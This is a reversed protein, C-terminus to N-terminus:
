VTVWISYQKKNIQLKRVAAFTIRVCASSSSQLLQLQSQQSKIEDISLSNFSGFGDPIGQLDNLQSTDESYNGKVYEGENGAQCWKKLAQLVAYLSNGGNDATNNNTLMRKLNLGDFSNDSNYNGELFLGGGFGSHNTSSQSYIAKCNTIQTESIIFASQQQNFYLTIYIGGGNGANSTCDEINTNSLTIKSENAFLYVAGGNWSSNCGIFLCGSLTLQSNSSKLSAYLGGGNEYSTCRNFNCNSLTVSSDSFSQANLGGGSYGECYAFTVGDIALQVASELYLYLSNTLSNEDNPKCEIFLTRKFTFLVSSQSLRAQIIGHYDSFGQATRMTIDEFTCNEITIVSSGQLMFVETDTHIDKVTLKYIYATGDYMRLFSRHMLASTSSQSMQCNLLTLDSHSSKGYLVDSDLSSWSEVTFNIYNFKASGSINFSGDHDIQINSLSTSTTPYNRFTRPSSYESIQLYQSLSIVDVIYVIFTASVNIKSTITQSDINKCPSDDTCQNFNDGSTQVYFENIQIIDDDDDGPETGGSNWYSELYKTEGQIQSDNYQNFTEMSQAIGMLVNENSTADNYNGKVFKGATGEKCWLELGGIVVFLTQGFKDAKNGDIKMGSLDITGDKYPFLSHGGIFIGGGYGQPRNYYLYQAECEQFIADNITFKCDPTYDLYIGGGNGKCFCKYFKCQSNIIINGKYIDAYIGGGEGGEAASCNTFLCNGSLTLQSNSQSDVYIGGGYGYNYASCDTFLFQNSDTTGLTLQAGSQLQVYIGGGRSAQCHDFKLNSLIGIALQNLILCLAGGYSSGEPSRCRIFQTEAITLQNESSTQYVNIIGARNDYDIGRRNIDQFISNTITITKAHFAYIIAQASEVNEVNLNNIILVGQSIYVFTRLLVSQQDTTNMKCNTINIVASSSSSELVPDFQQIVSVIFKIFMFLIQGSVGFYHNKDVRIGCYAESSTPYNRFTRPSDTQTISFNSAFTNDMVYVIFPDATNVNNQIANAGLTWCPATSTQCDKQDDGFDKVYYEVGNVNFTKWSVLCALLLLLTLHKNKNNNKIQQQKPQQQYEKNTFLISHINSTFSSILMVISYILFLQVCTFIQTNNDVNQPPIQISLQCQTSNVQNKQLIAPIQSDHVVTLLRIATRTLTYCACNLINYLETFIQRINLIQLWSEHVIVKMIDPVSIKRAQFQINTEYASKEWLCDDNSAFQTNECTMNYWSRLYKNNHRMVTLKGAQYGDLDNTLQHASCQNCKVDIFTGDNILCVSVPVSDFENLQESHFRHIVTDRAARVNCSYIVIFVFALSALTM